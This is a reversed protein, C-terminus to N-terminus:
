PALLFLSFLHIMWYPPKLPDVSEEESCTM